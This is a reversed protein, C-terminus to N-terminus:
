EEAMWEAEAVRPVGSWVGVPATRLAHVLGRLLRV